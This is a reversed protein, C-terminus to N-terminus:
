TLGREAAKEMFAKARLPDPRQNPDGDAKISSGVIITDVVRLLRDLNEANVGSGAV